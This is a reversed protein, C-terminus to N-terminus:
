VCCLVVRILSRFVHLVFFIHPICSIPVKESHRTQDKCWGPWLHPSVHLVVFSKNSQPFVLLVFFSQKRSLVTFINAAARTELCCIMALCM